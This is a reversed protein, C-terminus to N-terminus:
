CLHMCSMKQELRRDGAELVDWSDGDQLWFFVSNPDHKVYACRKLTEDALDDMREQETDREEADNKVAELIRLVALDAADPVAKNKWAPGSIACTTM